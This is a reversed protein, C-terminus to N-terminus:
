SNATLTGDGRMATLIADVSVKLQSFTTINSGFSIVLDHNLAAALAAGDATATVATLAAIATALTAYGAALATHASNVATVHAQTPSAGDAVLTALTSAVTAALIVYAAADTKVTAILGTITVLDAVVATADLAAGLPVHLSKFLRPYADLNVYSPSLTAAHASRAV